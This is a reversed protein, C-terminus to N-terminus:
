QAYQMLSNPGWILARDIANMQRSAPTGPIDVPMLNFSQHQHINPQPQARVSSLTPSQAQPKHAEVGKKQNLFFFFNSKVIDNNARTQLEPLEINTTTAAPTTM